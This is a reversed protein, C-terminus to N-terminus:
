NNPVPHAIYNAYTRLNKLCQRTCSHVDVQDALPRTFDIYRVYIAAFM